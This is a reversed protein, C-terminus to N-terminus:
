ILLKHIIPQTIMAMNNIGWTATITMYKTIAPVSSFKSSTPRESYHPSNKGLSKRCMKKKESVSSTPCLLKQELTMNPTAM